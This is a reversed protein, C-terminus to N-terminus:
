RRSGCITRFAHIENRLDTRFAHIENRIDTQIENRLNTVHTDMANLIEQVPDLENRRVEETRDQADHYAAGHRRKLELDAVRNGLRADMRSRKRHNRNIRRTVRAQASRRSNETADKREEYRMNSAARVIQSYTQQAEDGDQRQDAM